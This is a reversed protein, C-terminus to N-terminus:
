ILNKLSDLNDNEFDIDLDRGSLGNEPELGMAGIAERGNELDPGGGQIDWKSEVILSKSAMEDPVIQEIPAKDSSKMQRQTQIVPQPRQENETTTVVTTNHEDEYDTFPIHNKIQRDVIFSYNSSAENSLYGPGLGGAGGSSSADEVLGVPHYVMASAEYNEAGQKCKKSTTQTGGVIANGLKSGIAPM